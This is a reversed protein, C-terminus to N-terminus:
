TLDFKRQTAIFLSSAMAQVAADPKGQLKTEATGYCYAYLNGMETVYDAIARKTDPALTPQTPQPPATPAAAVAAPDAEIGLSEAHQQLPQGDFRDDPECVTVTEGDDAVVAQYTEGKRLWQLEDAGVDYSKWFSRGDAIAFKVPRYESDSFKSPKPRGIVECTVTTLQGTPM